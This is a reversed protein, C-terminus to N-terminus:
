IIYTHPHCLNYHTPTPTCTCIYYLIIKYIICTHVYASLAHLIYTHKKYKHKLPAQVLKSVGEKIANLNMGEEIPLYVRQM